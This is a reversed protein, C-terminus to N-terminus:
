SILSSTTRCRAPASPRSALSTPHAVGIAYALQVECRTPWAPPSSTRPSTAPWTPPPATSRPPTRAPSPAAATAPLLRRLHRRHDQPRDPRHRGAPRRHRLPRHPQRLLQHGQRGAPRRPHGPKIVHELVEHKITTTARRRPTSPPSSSPTSARRAQRGRVPRHGPVQRRAAALAIIATRASRPWGDRGAPPRAHDAPAHAGTDRRLCLRVDHGPRRRRHPEIADEEGHLEKAELSKSVGITSTPPSAKISCSSAVPRPTSASDASTYGIERVVKRVVEPIEVYTNTTIKAPSSSWAPRPWPRAPWAPRPDDELMADLIADSIQDCMKDPHGESVSESTHFHVPATMATLPM